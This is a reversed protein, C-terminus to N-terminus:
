SPELALNLLLECSISLLTTSMTWSGMGISGGGEGAVLQDRHERGGEYSSVLARRGGGGGGGGV